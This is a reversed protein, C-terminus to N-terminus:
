GPGQDAWCHSLCVAAVLPSHSVWTTNSGEVQEQLLWQKHGQDGARAGPGAVAPAGRAGAGHCAQTGRPLPM